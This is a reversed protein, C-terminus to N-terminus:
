RNIERSADEEEEEEMADTASQAEYADSGEPAGLTTTCALQTLLVFLYGLILVPLEIAKSNM